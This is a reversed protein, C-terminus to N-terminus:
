LGLGMSVHRGLVYAIAFFPILYPSTKGFFTLYCATVVGFVLINFDVTDM